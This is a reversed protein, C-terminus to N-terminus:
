RVSRAAGSCCRRRRGRVRPDCSSNELVAPVPQGASSMGSRSVIAVTGTGGEAGVEMYDAGGVPASGIVAAYFGAVAEVRDSILRVSSFQM